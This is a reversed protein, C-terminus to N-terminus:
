TNSHTSKIRKMGSCTNEKERQMRPTCLRIGHGAHASYPVTAVRLLYTLRPRHSVVAIPDDLDGCQCVIQLTVHLHTTSLNDRAMALRAEYHHRPHATCKCVPTRFFQHIRSKLCPNDALFIIFTHYPGPWYFM